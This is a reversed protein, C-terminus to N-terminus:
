CGEAGNIATIRGASDVDICTNCGLCYTGPGVGTVPNNIVGIFDLLQQPNWEVSLCANTTFRQATTGDRGRVVTLTFGTTADVRVVERRVGERVTLYYYDGSPISLKATDAPVIKFETDGPEVPASLRASNGYNKMNLM